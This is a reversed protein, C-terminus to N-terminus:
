VLVIPLRSLSVPTVSLHLDFSFTHIVPLKVMCIFDETEKPAKGLSLIFQGGGMVEMGLLVFTLTLSPNYPFWTGDDLQVHGQHGLTGSPCLGAGQSCWIGIVVKYEPCGSM